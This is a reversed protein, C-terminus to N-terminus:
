VPLQYHVDATAPGSNKFDFCVFDYGWVNHRVVVPFVLEDKDTSLLLLFFITDTGPVTWTRAIAVGTLLSLRGSM